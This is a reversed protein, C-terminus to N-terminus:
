QQCFLVPSLWTPDDRSFSRRAEWAAIELSGHELLTSYFVRAFQQAGQDSVPWRFSLAAPVGAQIVADALGLFEGVLLDEDRGAAAGYCSNLYVFRAESDQLLGTLKEAPLRVTKAKEDEKDRFYLSSQEPIEEEYGSHGAYHIIDYGKSSLKKVVHDYTAQRSFIAEVRCGQEELLSQLIQIEEDVEISPSTNSAILLVCLKEPDAFRRTSLVRRRPSIGQIMRSFPYQFVFYDDPNSIRLFEFPVAEWHRPTELKLMILPRDHGRAEFFAQRLVEHEEFLDHWLQLGIKKILNRFQRANYREKKAYETDLQYQAVDINVNHESYGSYTHEGLCRAYLPKKEGLFVSLFTDIKRPHERIKEIATLVDREIDQTKNIFDVAGYMKISRVIINPNPFQSLMILHIEPIILRLASALMLGSEDEEGGAHLRVDLIGVDINSDRRIIEMAENENSAAYTEYEADRLFGVITSRVDEQDDVIIIKKAM